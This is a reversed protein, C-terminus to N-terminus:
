KDKIDKWMAIVCKIIKQIIEVDCRITYLVIPTGYFNELYLCIPTCRANLKSFSLKRARANWQRITMFQITM